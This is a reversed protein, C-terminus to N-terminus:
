LGLADELIRWRGGRACLLLHQGAKGEGHKGLICTPQLESSLVTAQLPVLLVQRECLRLLVAMHLDGLGLGRIYSIVCLEVEDLATRVKDEQPVPLAHQDADESVRKEVREPGPSRRKM